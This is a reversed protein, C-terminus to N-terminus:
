DYSKCFDPLAWCLLPLSVLLLYLGVVLVLIFCLMLWPVSVLLLKLTSPMKPASMKSIKEYV